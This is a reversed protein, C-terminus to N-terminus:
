FVIVKLQKGVTISRANALTMCSVQMQQPIGQVQFQLWQLVCDYLVPYATKFIGNVFIVKVIYRIHRYGSSDWNYGVPICTASDTVMVFYLEHVFQIENVTFDSSSIDDMECLQKQIENGFTDTHVGQTYFWGCYGRM